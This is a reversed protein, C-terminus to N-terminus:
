ETTDGNELEVITRAELYNLYTAGWSALFSSAFGSIFILLLADGHMFLLGFLGAVMSITAPISRSKNREFDIHIFSVLLFFWIVPSLISVLLSTHSYSSLLIGCLWGVWVGTCQYCEVLEYRDKAIKNDKAKEFLYNRIPLMIKSDVVVHTLGISGFIFVLLYVLYEM